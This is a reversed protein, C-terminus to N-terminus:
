PTREQEPEPTLLKIVQDLFEPREAFVANRMPPSGHPTWWTAVARRAARYSPREATIHIREIM